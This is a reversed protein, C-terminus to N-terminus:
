KQFTVGEWPCLDGFFSLWSDRPSSAPTSIHLSCQTSLTFAKSIQCHLPPLLSLSWIPVSLLGRPSASLTRCASPLPPMLLLLCPLGHTRPQIILLSSCLVRQRASVGLGAGDQQEGHNGSSTPQVRNSTMETAGPPNMDLTARQKDCSDSCGGAQSHEFICKNRACFVTSM